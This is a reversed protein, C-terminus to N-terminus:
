YYLKWMMSLEGTGIDVDAGNHDRLTVNISTFYKRRPFAIDAIGGDYNEFTQLERYAATIPIAKAISVIGGDGDVTTRGCMVSSHVYLMHPGHLSAVHPFIVTGQHYTEPLGLLPALTSGHISGYFVIPNVGANTFAFRQDTTSSEALVNPASTGGLKADIQANLYTLLATSDYQGVPVTIKYAFIPITGIELHSFHFHNTSGVALRGTNRFGLNYMLDGSGGTYKFEVHYLSSEPADIKVIGNHHASFVVDTAVGTEATFKADFWTTANATLTHINTYSNAFTADTLSTVWQSYDKNTKLKWRWELTKSLDLNNVTNVFADTILPVYEEFYLVDTKGTQINSINQPFTVSELTIGGVGHNLETPWHDLSV